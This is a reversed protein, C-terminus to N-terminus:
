IHRCIGQSERTGNGDTLQFDVVLLGDEPIEAGTVFVILEEVTAYPAPNPAPIIPPPPTVSGGPNTPGPEVGAARDGGSGGGGCAVLLAISGAIFWNRATILTM